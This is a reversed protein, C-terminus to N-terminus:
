LSVLVNRVDFNADRHIHQFFTSVAVLFRLMFKQHIWTHYIEDDTFSLSPGFWTRNEPRWRRNATFSKSESFVDLKFGVM